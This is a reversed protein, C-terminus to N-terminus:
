YKKRVLNPEDRQLPPASKQPKQKPFHPDLHPDLDPNPSGFPQGIYYYAYSTPCKSTSYKISKNEGLIGVYGHLIKLPTSNKKNRALYTCM